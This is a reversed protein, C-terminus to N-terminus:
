QKIQRSDKWVHLCKLCRHRQYQGAKTTYVGWRHCEEHGCCPCADRAKGKLLGRHVRKDVYPSIINEVKELLMVDRKCYKVMKNLAKKKKYQVIDIWDQFSMPAKGEGLLVHSLYDLKNSPLKFHRRVQKLTDESQVWNVPPLGKLLRHTNIHKADFNDGNHGIAIDAQSYVEDFKKILSETDQEELGWDISHIKKEGEWKYCVCIIGFPSHEYIQDHTLNVKQGIRWSWVLLPSTEIDYYLIKPKREKM